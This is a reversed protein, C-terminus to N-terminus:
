CLHVCADFPCSGQRRAVKVAEARRTAESAVLHPRHCILLAHLQIKSDGSHERQM